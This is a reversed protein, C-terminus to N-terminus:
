ESLVPWPDDIASITKCPWGSRCNVCFYPFHENRRHVTRVRELRTALIDRDKGLKEAIEQWTPPPIEDFGSM